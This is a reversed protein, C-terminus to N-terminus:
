RKGKMRIAMILDNVLEHLQIAVRDIDSEEEGKAYALEASMVQYNPIAIEVVAVRTVKPGKQAPPIPATDSM